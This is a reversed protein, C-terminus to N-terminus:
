EEVWHLSREVAKHWGKLSDERQTKDMKPDFQLDRQWAKATEEV